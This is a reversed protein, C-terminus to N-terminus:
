LAVSMKFVYISDEVGYDLQHKHPYSIALRKRLNMLGIGSDKEEKIKGGDLRVPNMVLLELHNEKRSINISISAKDKNPVAHKFANEIPCLLLLPPIQKGEFDGSQELKVSMKGSLRIKELEIYNKLYEIEKSLSVWNNQTHYLSYRMLDSLKLMLGPLKDSKIVALGYLNNLTNFFFHPQLQAKLTDLEAQQSKVRLLVIDKAIKFGTAVLMIGFLYVWQKWYMNKSYGIWDKLLLGIFAWFSINAFYLLAFRGYKRKYLFKPLIWFANTLIPFMLYLIFPFSFWIFIALSPDGEGEEAILWLLGLAFGLIM